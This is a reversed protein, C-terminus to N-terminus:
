RKELFAILGRRDEESFDALLEEEMLHFILQRSSAESPSNRRAHIFIRCRKGMKYVRVYDCNTLIYFPVM